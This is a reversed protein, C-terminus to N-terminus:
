EGSPILKYLGNQIFLKGTDHVTHNLYTGEKARLRRFNGLSRKNEARIQYGTLPHGRENEM